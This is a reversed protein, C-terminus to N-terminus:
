GRGAPLGTTKRLTADLVRARRLILAFTAILVVPTLSVATAEAISRAAFPLVWLAVLLSVEYPAFGQRLGHVVLFAIAPALVALDYDLVYPTAARQRDVARGGEARFGGGLAV